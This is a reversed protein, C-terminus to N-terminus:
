TAYGALLVHRVKHAQLFEKLPGYGRADYTVVDDPDVDIDKTVPIPLDWFGANNFRAGADLGPFQKFYDVVPRDKSLTLERPVPDGKYVFSSLKEKLERAGQERQEKTPKGQFSRYLKKRIP